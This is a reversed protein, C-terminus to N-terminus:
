LEGDVARLQVRRVRGDIELDALWESPGTARLKLLRPATAAYDTREQPHLPVQERRVPAADAPAAAANPQATGAHPTPMASSLVSFFSRAVGLLQETLAPDVLTQALSGLAGQADLRGAFSAVERQVGRLEAAVQRGRRLNEEVIRYGDRVVRSAADAPATGPTSQPQPNAPATEVERADTAVTAAAADAKGPAYLNSWSRKPESRELAPRRLRGPGAANSGGNSTTDEQSM